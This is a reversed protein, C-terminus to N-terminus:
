TMRHGRVPHWPQPTHTKELACLKPRVGSNTVKKKGEYKAACFTLAAGLTKEVLCTIWVSPSADPELGIVLALPTWTTMGCDKRGRLVSSSRVKNALPSSVVVGYTALADFEQTRPTCTCLSFVCNAMWWSISHWSWIHTTTCFSTVVGNNQKWSKFSFVLSMITTSFFLRFVVNPGRGIGSGCTIPTGDLVKSLCKIPERTTSPMRLRTVLKLMALSTPKGVKSEVNVYWFPALFVESTSKNTLLPTTSPWERWLTEWENEFMTGLSLIEM